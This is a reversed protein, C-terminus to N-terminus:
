PYIATPKWTSKCIVFQIWVNILTKFLKYWFSISFWTHQFTWDIKSGKWARTNIHIHFEFSRRDCFLLTIVLYPNEKFILESGKPFDHSNSLNVIARRLFYHIELKFITWAEDYWTNRFLNGKCDAFTVKRRYDVRNSRGTVFDHFGVTTQWHFM